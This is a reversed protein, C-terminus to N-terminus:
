EVTQKAGAPASAATQSPSQAEIKQLTKRLLPGYEHKSPCVFTCLALDEEDLELCGLALAQETDEALLSELLQTPLIDLPMVREYTEIPMIARKTEGQATSIAFRQGQGFLSSAFMGTISFIDQGPRMWGLFERESNEPIAAVQLHYRGLFPGSVGVARGSLVSGSILRHNQEDIEGATLELLNAGLRTRILRPRSVCPGALSIIREVWLKGTTFLKGIAIVDQYNIWWVTKKASIPDLFHIHTGALGAPHPGAFEETKAFSLGSGPINEDPPKCVYVPGDTLHRLSQLGYIFPLEYQPLIVGPHPAHPNTDIATVFISHPVSAPSPVKSYPRTRFATWLGSQLLNQRVEERSLGNLDVAYYSPFEVEEDGKLEIAVSHSEPNISVVKGAGPSVYLVGPTSEDEFLLEGKKVLDGQSVALKPKIGLSDATMLGVTRVPRGEDIFQRPEGKLPIDLGRTIHIM